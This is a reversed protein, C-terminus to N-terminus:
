HFISIALDAAPGDVHIQRIFTTWNNIHVILSILLTPYSKNIDDFSCTGKRCVRCHLYKKYTEFFILIIFQLFNMLM